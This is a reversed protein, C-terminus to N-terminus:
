EATATYREDSKLADLLKAKYPELTKIEAAAVMEVVANYYRAPCGGVPLVEWNSWQFEEAYDPAVAPMREVM